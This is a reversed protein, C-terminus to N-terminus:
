LKKNAQINYNVKVKNNIAKFLAYVFSLPTNEIDHSQSYSTHTM